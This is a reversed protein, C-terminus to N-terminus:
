SPIICSKGKEYNTFGLRGTSVSRNMGLNSVGNKHNSQFHEQVFVKSSGIGMQMEDEEVEEESDQSERLIDAVSVQGQWSFSDLSVSRRFPQVVDGVVDDERVQIMRDRPESDQSVSAFSQRQNKSSAGDNEIGLVATQQSM